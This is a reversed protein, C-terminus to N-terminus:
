KKNQVLRDALMAYDLYKKAYEYSNNCMDKILGYNSINKIANELEKQTNVLFGNNSFIHRHSPVDDLILACRHTIAMQMTASQSGPQLYIDSMCLLNSIDESNAWGIFQIRNDTAILSLADKKIEDHLIGAIFLKTKKNKTNRFAVLSEILKKKKDFKGTQLFVIDDKCHYKQRFRERRGLYDIDNIIKGGLPFFELKEEEISYIEKCFKKTEYTIYLVKQIHKKALRIIPVYFFRYLINRSLFTTASNNLDEHSDAYLLVNSNNKVYLAVTLLSYACMGHFIILEPKFKKIEDYLGQYARIKRSIKKSLIKVYPLRYVMAGDSGMYRSPNTYTLSGKSSFTETSAIVLVDHGSKVHEQVLINEQYSYDDIYFCSLCCHLIKL